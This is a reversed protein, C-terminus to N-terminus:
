FFPKEPASIPKCFKGTPLKALPELNNALYLANYLEDGLDMRIQELQNDISHRYKNSETVNLSVVPLKNQDLERAYYNNILAISQGYFEVIGVVPFTLLLAEAQELDLQNAKASLISRERFSADSM